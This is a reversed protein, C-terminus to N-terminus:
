SCISGVTVTVIGSALDVALRALDVTAVPM